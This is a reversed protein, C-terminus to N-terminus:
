EEAFPSELAARDESDLSGLGEFMANTRWSENETYLDQYFDLIVKKLAEKDEIIGDEM